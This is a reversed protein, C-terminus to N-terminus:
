FVAYIVHLLPLLPLHGPFLNYSRKLLERQLSDKQRSYNTDQDFTTLQKLREDISSIDIVTTNNYDPCSIKRQYGCRQCFRFDHDNTHRSTPCCM